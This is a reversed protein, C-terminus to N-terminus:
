NFFFSFFFSTQGILETHKSSYNFSTILCKKLFLWVAYMMNEFSVICYNKMYWKILCNYKCLMKEVTFLWYNDTFKFQCAEMLHMEACIILMFATLLLADVSKRFKKEIASYVAQPSQFPERTIFLTFM